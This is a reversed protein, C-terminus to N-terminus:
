DAAYGQNQICQRMEETSEHKHLTTPTDCYYVGGDHRLTIEHKSGLMETKVIVRRGDHLATLIEEATLEGADARLPDAM